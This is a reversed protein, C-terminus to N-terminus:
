DPALAKHSLDMSLALAEVLWPAQGVAAVGFAGDGGGPLGAKLAAWLPSDGVEVFVLTEPVIPAGVGFLKVKGVDPGGDEGAGGVGAKLVPQNGVLHIGARRFVVGRQSESSGVGRPHM